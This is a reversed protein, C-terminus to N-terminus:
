KEILISTNVKCNSTPHSDSTPEKIIFYPRESLIHIGSIDKWFNCTNKIKWLASTVTNLQAVRVGNMKSAKRKIVARGHSGTSYNFLSILMVAIIPECHFSYLRTMQLWQPLRHRPSFLEAKRKLPLSYVNYLHLHCGQSSGRYRNLASQRPKLGDNLQLETELSYNLDRNYTISYTKHFYDKPLVRPFRRAAHVKGSCM